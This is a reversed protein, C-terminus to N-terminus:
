SRMFFSKKIIGYVAALALLFGWGDPIPIVPSNPNPDGGPDSTGIPNDLGGGQRTTNNDALLSLDTSMSILGGNPLNSSSGNSGKGFGSAGSFGGDGGASGKSIKTPENNAVILGTNSGNKSEPNASNVQYSAANKRAESYAPISIDNNGKGISRYNTSNPIEEGDFVVGHNYTYYYSNQKYLDPSGVPSYLVLLLLSAWTILWILINNRRKDM